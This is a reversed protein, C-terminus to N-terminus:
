PSLWSNARMRCLFSVLLRVKEIDLNKTAPAPNLLVPVHYKKGFDIAAYVTELCVELQLIILSCKKLHDQRILTLRCCTNM